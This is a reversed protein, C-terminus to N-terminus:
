ARKYDIWEYPEGEFMGGGHRTSEEFDESFEPFRATGEKTSEVVTLMLTDTQPLFLSYIEAGGFIFIKESGESQKAVQLAEEPSTVVLCGAATYDVNRTLIINTRGPLPRGISEYTKRGMILPHGMTLEKVRKLDAPNHWILEDGQAIFRTEKGLSAIAIVQPQNM